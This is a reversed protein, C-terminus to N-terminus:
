ALVPDRYGSAMLYRVVMSGFPDKRDQDGRDTYLETLHMLIATQVPAPCTTVNWAADALAGCARIVFATAQDLKAQVELESSAVSSEARLHAKATELDVLQPVDIV